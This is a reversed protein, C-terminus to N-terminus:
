VAPRPRRDTGDKLLVYTSSIAEVLSIRRAEPRAGFILGIWRSRRVVCEYILLSGLFAFAFTLIIKESLLWNMKHLYFVAMVIFTQHMLYIPLTADNAYTLIPSSRNLWRTLFGVAAVLWAVVNLAALVSWGVAGGITLFKPDNGISPWKVQLTFFAAIGIILAVHRGRQVALLIERWEALVAGFLFLTGFELWGHPDGWLSHNDNVQGRLLIQASALPLVLLWYLHKNAVAFVAHDLTSHGARSRVWMLIPLMVVTLVLVYPIFWMQHWSLNGSPYIGDAIHPLFDLYSGKFQGSQIREFYVQPPVIVIIAFVLPFLLRRVRERLIAFPKRHVLALMLAAGAVIFVLAVRWPWLFSLFFNLAFSHHLDTVHWPWSSFGIASHFIM